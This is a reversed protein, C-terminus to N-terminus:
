IEGILGNEKKEFKLLNLLALCRREIEAVTRNNIFWSFRFQYSNLIEDRIKSWEGYGHRHMMYMLFVDEEEIFLLGKRPGYLIKMDKLSNDINNNNNYISSKFKNDILLKIEEDKRKKSEILEVKEFMETANIDSIAHSSLFSLLEDNSKKWYNSTYNAVETESKGTAYAVDICLSQMDSRGYEKIGALFLKIEDNTWKNEQISNASSM